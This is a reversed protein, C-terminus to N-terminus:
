RRLSKALLAEVESKAVTIAIVVSHMLSSSIQDSILSQRPRLAFAVSCSEASSM